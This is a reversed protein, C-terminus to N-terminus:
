IYVLVDTCEERRSGCRDSPVSQVGLARLPPAGLSPPPPPLRAGAQSVVPSTGTWRKGGSLSGPEALGFAEFSVAFLFFVGHRRPDLVSSDSQGLWSTPPGSCCENLRSLKKKKFALVSLRGGPGGRDM